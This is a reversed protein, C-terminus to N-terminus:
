YKRKLSKMLGGDDSCCTLNDNMSCAQKSLNLDCFIDNLEAETSNVPIFDRDTSDAINENKEDWEEFREQSMPVPLADCPVAPRIALTLNLYM